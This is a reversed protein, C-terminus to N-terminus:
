EKLELEITQALRMRDIGYGLGVSKLVIFSECGSTPFFGLECFPIMGSAHLDEIKFGAGKPTTPRHSPGIELGFGALDLHFLTKRQADCASLILM